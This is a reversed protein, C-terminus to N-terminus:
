RTSNTDIGFDDRGRRGTRVGAIFVGVRGGALLFDHQLHELVFAVGFVGGFVEGLALEDLDRVLDRVRNSTQLLIPGSILIGKTTVPEESLKCTLRQKM